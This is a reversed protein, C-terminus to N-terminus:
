DERASAASGSDAPEVELEGVEHRAGKRERLPKLFAKVIARLKGEQQGARARAAHVALISTTVDRDAPSLKLGQVFAADTDATLLWTDCFLSVKRNGSSKAQLASLM